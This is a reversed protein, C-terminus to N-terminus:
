EALHSQQSIKKMLLCNIHIKVNIAIQCFYLFIWIFWVNSMNNINGPWFQGYDVRHTIALIIINSYYVLFPRTQGCVSNWPFPWSPFQYIVPGYYLILALKILKNIHTTLINNSSFQFNLIAFNFEHRKDCLKKMLIGEGAIALYM